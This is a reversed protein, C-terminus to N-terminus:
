LSLSVKFYNTVTFIPNNAFVYDALVPKLQKMDGILIIFKGGFPINLGMTLRLIYDM